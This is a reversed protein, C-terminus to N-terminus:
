REMKGKQIRVWNARSFLYKVRQRRAHKQKGQQGTFVRILAGISTEAVVRLVSM